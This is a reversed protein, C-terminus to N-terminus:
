NPRTNRDGGRDTQRDAHFLETVTPCIQMFGRGLILLFYTSIIRTQNCGSLFLMLGAHSGLFDTIIDQQIRGLNFFTVPFKKSPILVGM